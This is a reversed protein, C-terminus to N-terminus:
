KNFKKNKIDNILKLYKKIVIEDSYLSLTRRRSNKEMKYIRSKPLKIFNKIKKILDKTDNPKVLYGNFNNSVIEKCGPVNSCIIFKEMASAELL